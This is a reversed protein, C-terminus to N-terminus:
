ETLRVKLNGEINDYGTVIGNKSKVSSYGFYMTRFPGIENYSTHNAM